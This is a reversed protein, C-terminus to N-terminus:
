LNIELIVLCTTHQELENLKIQEKKSDANRM